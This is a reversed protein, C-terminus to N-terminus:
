KLVLEWFNNDIVQQFEPPLKEGEWMVTADKPCKDEGGLCKGAILGCYSCPILSNIYELWKPREGKRRPERM